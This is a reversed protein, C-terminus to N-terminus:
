SSRWRLCHFWREQTLFPICAFIASVGLFATRPSGLQKVVPYLIGRFIFEEAVPAIVVRLVHFLGDALGVGLEPVIEVARQNEVPVGIKGIWQPFHKAAALGGAADFPSCGGSLSLSELVNGHNTGFAEAWSIRQLRLFIPILVWAM